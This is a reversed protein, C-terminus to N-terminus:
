HVSLYMGTSRTQTLAPKVTSEVGTSKPGTSHSVTSTIGTSDPITSTIGTSHAVASTIGTSDPITSTIGTSHGVTSTIGTSDPITSTIGTSEAVTSTVATTQDPAVPVWQASEGPAPHQAVTVARQGEGEPSRLQADIGGEVPPVTSIGALFPNPEVLVPRFPQSEGPATRTEMSVDGDADTQAGVDPVGLSLTKHSYKADLWTKHSPTSTFCSYQAFGLSISRRDGGM